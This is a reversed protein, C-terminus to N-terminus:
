RVDNLPTGNTTSSQRRTKPRFTYRDSALRSPMFDFTTRRYTSLRMHKNAEPPSQMSSM